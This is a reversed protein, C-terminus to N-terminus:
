ELGEEREQRRRSGNSPFRGQVQQRRLLLQVSKELLWDTAQSREAECPKLLYPLLKNRPDVKSAVIVVLLDVLEPGLDAAKNSNKSM